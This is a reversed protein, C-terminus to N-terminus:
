RLMKILKPLFIIALLMIVARATSGTISESWELLSNYTKHGAQKFFYDSIITIICGNFITLSILIGFTITSLLWDIKFVLCYAYVFIIALHLVQMAHGLFVM